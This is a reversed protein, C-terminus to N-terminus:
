RLRIALELISPTTQGEVPQREQRTPIPIANPMRALRNRQLRLAEGARQLALRQTQAQQTLQGLDDQIEDLMPAPDASGRYEGPGVAELMLYACLTSRHPGKRLRQLVPEGLLRGLLENVQTAVSTSSGCARVAASGTWEDRTGGPEQYGALVLAAIWGALRDAPLDALDHATQVSSEGELAAMLHGGVLSVRSLRETNGARASADVLLGELENWRMPWASPEADVGEVPPPATVSPAPTGVARLGYVTNDPTFGDM